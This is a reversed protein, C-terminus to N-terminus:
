AGGLTNTLTGVGEISAEVRDGRAVPVRDGAFGVAIIEGPQLTMIWSITSILEAVSREMDALAFASKQEGNVRITVTLADPNDITDAPVIEPGVPASTDLCKGKIDPRFYSEEPLSFDSVITYGGVYNLAEAQSVRCAEQGIVVGLSAGVAMAPADSGDFDKAWEVEAGDVNWTNRPKYYLVPQTPPKNYPPQNFTGELATLQSKDNLAVCVLKSRVLTNATM